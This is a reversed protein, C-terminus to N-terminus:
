STPAKFRWHITVTATRGDTDLVKAKLVKDGDFTLASGDKSVKGSVTLITSWSSDGVPSNGILLLPKGVPDEYTDSGNTCRRNLEFGDDLPLHVIYTSNVSNITLIPPMMGYPDAPLTNMRREAEITCLVDVTGGTEAVVGFANDKELISVPGTRSVADWVQANPAVGPASQAMAAMAMIQQMQQVAHPDKAQEMAVQLECQEDGKCAATKAEWKREWEEESESASAAAGGTAPSGETVPAQARVAISYSAKNNVSWARSKLGAGPQAKESGSGEVRVDIELVGTAGEPAVPEAQISPAFLVGLPLCLFCRLASWSCARM